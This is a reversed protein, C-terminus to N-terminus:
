KTKTREELTAIREAHNVMFPILQDLQEKIPDFKADLLKYIPDIKADLYYKFFVALSVILGTIAFFMQNNTM